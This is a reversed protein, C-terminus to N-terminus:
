CEVHRRQELRVIYLAGVQFVFKCGDQTDGPTSITVNEGQRFQEVTLQEEVEGSVSVSSSLLLLVFLQCM